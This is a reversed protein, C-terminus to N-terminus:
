ATMHAGWGPVSPPPGVVTVGRAGLAAVIAEVDADAGATAHFAEELGGPTMIVLARATGTEVRFGHAVGRPLFASGGPGVRTERGGAVFTIEGDLVHFAEDEDAHVHIPPETGAVMVAEMMALAGGTDEAQLRWDLRSGAHDIATGGAAARVVPTATTQTTM